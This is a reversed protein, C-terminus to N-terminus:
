YILIYRSLTTIYTHKQAKSKSVTYVQAKSTDKTPSKSLSVIGTISDIYFYDSKTVLEYRVANYPSIADADTALVKVIESGFPYNEPITKRYSTTQFIPSNKNKNIIVTLVKNDMKSSNAKDVTQIRVQPSSFLYVIIISIIVIKVTM